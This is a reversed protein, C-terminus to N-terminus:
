WARCDTRVPVTTKSAQSLITQVYVLYRNFDEEVAVAIDGFVSLLPPKCARNLNPNQLGL